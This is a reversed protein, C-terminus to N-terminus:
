LRYVTLMSFNSFIVALGLYEIEDALHLCCTEESYEDYRYELFCQMVAWSKEAQCTFSINQDENSDPVSYLSVMKKTCTHVYKIVEHLAEGLARSLDCIALKM